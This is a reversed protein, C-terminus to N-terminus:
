VNSASSSSDSMDRPFGCSQSNMEYYGIFRHFHKHFNTCIENLNDLWVVEFTDRACWKLEEIENDVKYLSKLTRKQSYSM